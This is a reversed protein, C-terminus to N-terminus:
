SSGSSSNVAARFSSALRSPSADTLCSFFGVTGAHVTFWSARRALHVDAAEEARSLLELLRLLLGDLSPVLLRELARSVGLAVRQAAQAGLGGVQEPGATM